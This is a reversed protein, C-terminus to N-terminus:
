CLGVWDGCCSFFTSDPNLFLWNVRTCVPRGEGICIAGKEGGDGLYFPGRDGMASPRDSEPCVPHSSSRRNPVAGIKWRPPQEVVRLVPAMFSLPSWRQIYPNTPVRESSKVFAIYRVMKPRSLM